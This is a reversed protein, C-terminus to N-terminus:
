KAARLRELAERPRRESPHALKAAREASAVAEARRGAAFLLDAQVLYGEWEDPRRDLCEKIAALAAAPDGLKALAQARYYYGPAYDAKRAIAEGFAAVAQRYREQSTARDGGVEAREAQAFRCVGLYAHAMVLSPDARIAGDLVPVAADSDKLGVLARGLLLQTRPGPYLGALQRAVEAAGPLNGSQELQNFREVLAHEGRALAGIDRAFPNPFRTDDPMLTTAYEFGQADALSGRRRHLAALLTAAKKQGAPNRALGMLLRAAQADDRGALLAGLRYRAWASGPDRALVARCVAEAGGEDGSDALADALTLEAAARYEPGPLDLALVERFKAVADPAQAAAAGKALYYAWRGDRPALRRAEAYCAQAQASGEHADFALGLEGWAAGDSPADLVARRKAGVLELMAPDAWDAPIEPVAAPPGAVTASKPWLAAAGAGAIVLVLAALALRIM